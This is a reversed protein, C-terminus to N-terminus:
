RDNKEKILLAVSRVYFRVCALLSLGLGGYFGVLFSVPVLSFARLVIGLSMMFAVILWSKPQICHYFPMAEKLEMVYNVNPRVARPFVFFSFFLLAFVFWLLTSYGLQQGAPIESYSHIAIGLVKFGAFLWLALACLCLGLRHLKIM